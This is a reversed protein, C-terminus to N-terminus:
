DTDLKYYAERSKNQVLALRVPPRPLFGIHGSRGLEKEMFRLIWTMQSMTYEPHFQVGYFPLRKGEIMTVFEAGKRDVATGLIRFMSNLPETKHFTSVTIGYNNNFHPIYERRRPAAALLRSDATLRLTTGVHFQRAYIRELKAGFHIMLMQMGMCTGWIPFYDGVRNAETAMRIFAQTLSMYSPDDPWGPHLFLGHIHEFYAAAEAASITSPIFVLELSSAQLWRMVVVNIYSYTPNVHYPQMMLVGLRPM